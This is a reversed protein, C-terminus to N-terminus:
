LVIIPGVFFKMHNLTTFGRDTAIKQIFNESCLSCHILQHIKRRENSGSYDTLKKYHSYVRKEHIKILIKEDGFCPVKTFLFVQYFSFYIKSERCFAINVPISSISLIVFAFYGYNM